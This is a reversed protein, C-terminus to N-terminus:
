GVGDATMKTKKTIRAYIKKDVRKTRLEVYFM